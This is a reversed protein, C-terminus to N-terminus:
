WSNNEVLLSPYSAEHTTTFQWSCIQLAHHLTAIAKHQPFSTRWALYLTRTPAQTTFPRASLRPQALSTASRPVVSIGLGAAVMNSLTALSSATTFRTHALAEPSSFCALVQERLCHEQSLIFIEHGYLDAAQLQNQAALPHKNPLLVVLPETFISHNLIDPAAFPQAIVIADLEGQQLQQCLAQALNERPNLTINNALVRLQPVLQPLLYPALTPIVGLTLSGSLQDKASNALARINGVRAMVRETQAIIQKGVPTIKLGSRSREFLVVGLNEELNRVALSLAPQTVGCRAAARGFHLEHALAALYQLEVLTMM